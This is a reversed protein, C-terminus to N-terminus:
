IFCNYLLKVLNLLICFYMLNYIDSLKILSYSKAIRYDSTILSASLFHASTSPPYFYLVLIPYMQLVILLLIYINNNCYVIVITTVIIYIYILQTGM